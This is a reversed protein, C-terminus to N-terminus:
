EMERERVNEREGGKERGEKRERERRGGREKLQESNPGVEDWVRYLSM